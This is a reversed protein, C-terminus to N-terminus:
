QVVYKMVLLFAFAKWVQYQSTISLVHFNIAKPAIAPTSVTSANKSMIEVSFARSIILLNVSSSALNYHIAIYTDQHWNEMQKTDLFLRM